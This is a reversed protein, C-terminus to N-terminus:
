KVIDKLEEIQIIKHVPTYPNGSTMASTKDTISWQYFCIITKWQAEGYWLEYGVWLSPNTVNALILDCADIM